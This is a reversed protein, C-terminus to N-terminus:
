LGIFSLSMLWAIAASFRPLAGVLLFAAALAWLGLAAQLFAPEEIGRLASWRSGTPSGFVEVSGLSDRGFFDGALPLYSGLVDLLLVAAVGIRLAALREARVPETWWTWRTLPWPLWPKLGVVIAESM